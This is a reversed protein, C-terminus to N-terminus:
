VYPPISHLRDEVDLVGPTNEAVVRLARREIDSGVWGYITAIGNEVTANAARIRMNWPLSQLRSMLRERVADDSLLGPGVRPASLTALKRVLDSRSLMGSVRSGRVVPMQKLGKRTMTAAVKPLPADEMTTVPNKTMVDRAARGHSRVYEYAAATADTLFLQWWSRRPETGIEVRRILDGDSVIGVLRGTRDIVPVSSIRNQVLIDAIEQVPTDPSVSIVDTSMFHRVKMVETKAAAVAACENQAFGRLPQALGDSAVARTLVPSGASHRRMGQLRPWAWLSLPKCKQPLAPNAPVRDLLHPSLPELWNTGFTSM